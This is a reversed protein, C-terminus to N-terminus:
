EVLNEAGRKIEPANWVLIGVASFILWLSFINLHLAAKIPAYFWLCVFFLILAIDVSVAGKFLGNEYECAINHLIDAMIGLVLVLLIGLVAVILLFVITTLIFCLPVYWKWGEMGHAISMYLWGWWHFFAAIGKGRDTFWKGCETLVNRHGYLQFFALVATFITNSIFLSRFTDKTGKAAYEANRAKSESERRNNAEEQAAEHEKRANENAREARVRDYQAEQLADDASEKAEKAINLLKKNKL